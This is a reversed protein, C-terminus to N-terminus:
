AGRFATERELHGGGGREPTTQGKGRAKEGKGVEGHFFGVGGQFGESCRGGTLSKGRMEKSVPGGTFGGGRITHNPFQNKKPAEPICVRGDLSFAKQASDHTGRLGEEELSEVDKKSSIMNKKQTHKKKPPSLLKEIM